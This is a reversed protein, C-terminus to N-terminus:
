RTTSLNHMSCVCNILELGLISMCQKSIGYKFMSFTAEHVFLALHLIVSLCYMCFAFNVTSISQTLLPPELGLCARANGWTFDQDNSLSIQSHCLAAGGCTDGAWTVPCSQFQWHTYTYM